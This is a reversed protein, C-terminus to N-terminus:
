WNGSSGGGSFGGGGGSWSSGGGGSSWGGLGGGYSSGWGRRSHFGRSGQPLFNRIWILLIFILFMLGGIHNGIFEKMRIGSLNGAPVVGEAGALNSILVQTGTLFAPGYESKKFWPVMDNQIIRRVKIDPLEGELGQGIEIRVKREKIAAIILIGNDKNKDGLKWADTTAISAEEISIGGALDSLTLIQIQAIGRKELATIMRELENRSSSDIVGAQDVVPGTLAPPQWQPAAMVGGAIALCLFFSHVLNLKL